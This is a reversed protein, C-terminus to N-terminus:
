TLLLKATVDYCLCEPCRHPENGAVCSHLSVDDNLLQKPLGKLDAVIRYLSRVM